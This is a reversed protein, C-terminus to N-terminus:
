LFNNLVRPMLIDFLIYTLLSNSKEIYNRKNIGASIQIRLTYFM